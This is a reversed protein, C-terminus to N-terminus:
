DRIFLAQMRADDLSVVLNVLSMLAATNIHKRNKKLSTTFFWDMGGKESQFFTPRFKFHWWFNFPPTTLM